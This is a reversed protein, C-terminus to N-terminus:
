VTLHDQIMRGMRMMTSAQGVRCALDFQVVGCTSIHDFQLDIYSPIMLFIAKSPLPQEMLVALAEIIVSATM